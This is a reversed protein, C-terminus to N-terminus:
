YKEFHEEEVTDEFDIGWSEERYPANICYVITKKNYLYFLETMQKDEYFEVSDFSM